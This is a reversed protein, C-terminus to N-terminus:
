FDTYSSSFFVFDGADLFAGALGELFVDNQPADTVSILLDGNLDSITLDTIVSDGVKFFWLRDSGDEFDKVKGGNLNRILVFTNNGAGGSIVGDRTQTSPTDDGTQGLM